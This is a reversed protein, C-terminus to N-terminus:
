PLLKFLLEDNRRCKCEIFNSPQLSGNFLNWSHFFRKRTLWQFVKFFRATPPMASYIVDVNNQKLENIVEAVKEEARTGNIALDFNNQALAKAIGLGIGRSGGTILAVSKMKLKYDLTGSYRDLM